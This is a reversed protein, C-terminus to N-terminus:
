AEEELLTYLITFHDADSMTHKTKENYRMVLAPYKEPNNRFRFGKKRQNCLFDQQLQISNQNNRLQNLIENNM